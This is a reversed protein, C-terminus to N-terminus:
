AADVLRLIVPGVPRDAQDAPFRTLHFHPACYVEGRLCPHGCFTIAEGERDGGYPYHCQGPELDILSVLRPSIGVCRLKPPAREAIPPAPRSEAARGVPSAGPKKGSKAKPLRQSRPVLGPGRELRPPAALKMRKGRGIAAHRTYATGFRHNIAAVAEAYSMGRTVHERLAASHEPPWSFSQM